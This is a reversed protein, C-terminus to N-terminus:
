RRGAAHPCAPDHYGGAWHGGFVAPDPCEGCSTVETLKTSQIRYASTVRKKVSSGRDRDYIVGDRIALVHGRTMVVWDGKLHAKLFVALTPTVGQPALDEWSVKEVGWNNDKFHKIIKDEYEGKGTRKGTIGFAEIVLEWCKLHQGPALEPQPALRAKFEETTMKEVRAEGPERPNRRPRPQQGDMLRIHQRAKRYASQLNASGEILRELDSLSMRYIHEWGKGTHYHNAAYDQLDMALEHTAPM